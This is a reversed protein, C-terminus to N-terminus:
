PEDYSVLKRMPIKSLLTGTLAMKETRKRRSVAKVNYFGNPKLTLWGQKLKVRLEYFVWSQDGRQSVRCQRSHTDNRTEKCECRTLAARISNRPGWSASPIENCHLSIMSSSM